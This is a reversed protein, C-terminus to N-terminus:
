DGRTAKMWTDTGMSGKLMGRRSAFRDEKAGKRRKVVVVQGERILFEVEGHPGVGLFGRIPAPITVQGKTTLKM